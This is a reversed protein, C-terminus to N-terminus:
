IEKALKSALGSYNQPSLEKLENKVSEDIKLSDIFSILKDNDLAKGLYPKLYHYILKM